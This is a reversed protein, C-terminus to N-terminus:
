SGEAKSLRDQLNLIIRHYHLHVARPVSDPRDAYINEPDLLYEARPFAENIADAVRQFVEDTFQEPVDGELVGYVIEWLEPGNLVPEFHPNGTTADEDGERESMKQVWEATVLKKPKGCVICPDTISNECRCTLPTMMATGDARAIASVARAIPNALANRLEVPEANNTAFACVVDKLSELLEYVQDNQAPSHLYLPVGNGSRLPSRHILTHVAVHSGEENLLDDLSKRSV